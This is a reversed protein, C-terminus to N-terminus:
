SYTKEYRQEITESCFLTRLTPRGPDGTYGAILYRGNPVKYWRGKGGVGYGKFSECPTGNELVWDGVAEYSDASWVTGMNLEYPILLMLFSKTFHEEFLEGGHKEFHEDKKQKNEFPM